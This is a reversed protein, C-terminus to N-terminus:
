FRKLIAEMPGQLPRMEDTATEKLKAVVAVLATRDQATLDVRNANSDWQILAAMATWKLADPVRLSLLVKILTSSVNAHKVTPMSRGFHAVLGSFKIAESLLMQDLTSEHEPSSAAADLSKLATRLTTDITPLIHDLHEHIRNHRAEDPCDFPPLTVCVFLDLASLRTRAAIKTDSHLVFELTRAALEVGNHKVTIDECWEPTSLFPTLLPVARDLIDLTETSTLVVRIDYIFTYVFWLTWTWLFHWLSFGKPAQPPLCHDNIITSCVLPLLEASVFQSKTSPDAHVISGTLSLINLYLHHGVPVGTARDLSYIGDIQCLIEVLLSAIKGDSTIQAMSDPHQELLQLILATAQVCAVLKVDDDLSSARAIVSIAVPIADLDLFYACLTKPNSALLTCLTVVASAQVRFDSSESILALLVPVGGLRHLDTAVETSIEVLRTLLLLIQWKTETEHQVSAELQELFFSVGDVARFAASADKASDPQSIWSQIQAFATWSEDANTSKTATLVPTWKERESTAIPLRRCQPKHRNWATKQCSTSCFYVLKCQSCRQAKVVARECGACWLKHKGVSEETEPTPNLQKKIKQAADKEWQAPQPRSKQQIPAQRVESQPKPDNGHNLIVSANPCAAIDAAFMAWARKTACANCVPRPNDWQSERFADRKSQVVHCEECALYEDM